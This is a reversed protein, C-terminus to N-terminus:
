LGKGKWGEKRSRRRLEVREREAEIKDMESMNKKKREM